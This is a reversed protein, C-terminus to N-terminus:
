VLKKDSNFHLIIGFLGIRIQRAGFVKYNGFIFWWNIPNNLLTKRESFPIFFHKIYITKMNNSKYLPNKNGRL